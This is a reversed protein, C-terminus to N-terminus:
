DEDFYRKAKGCLLQLPKNTRVTDITKTLMAKSIEKARSAGISIPTNTDSGYDYSGMRPYDQSDFYGQQGRESPQEYLKAEAIEPDLFPVQVEIAVGKKWIARGAVKPLGAGETSDLIIKSNVGDAVQFCLRGILNAKCAGFKKTGLVTCDPRQTALIIHIGVARSMALLTELDNKASKSELQALEDIILVIYEMKEKNKRNYGEIRVCGADKLILLRNRMENVLRSMVQTAELQETILLVHNKLYQFDLMKFDIIVIKPPKPINLLSNAMVHIANSKGGGVYGGILINYIEALDEILLGHPTFGIPLPLIMKKPCPFKYEYEYM